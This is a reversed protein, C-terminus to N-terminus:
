KTYEKLSVYVVNSAAPEIILSTSGHIALRDGTPDHEIGVEIANEWKTRSGPGFYFRVRQRKLLPQDDEDRGRTGHFHSLVVDRQGVPVDGFLTAREEALIDLNDYLMEIHFRAWRPLRDMQIEPLTHYDRM